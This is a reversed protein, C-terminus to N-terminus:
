LLPGLQAIAFKRCLLRILINVSFRMSSRLMGLCKHISFCAILENYPFFVMSPLSARNCCIWLDVDIATILACSYHDSSSHSVEWLFAEKEASTDGRGIEEHLHYLLSEQKHLELELEENTEPLELDPGPRLPPRYPRLLYSPHPFLWHWTSPDVDTHELDIQPLSPDIVSLDIHVDTM